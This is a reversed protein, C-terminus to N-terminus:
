ASSRPTWITWPVDWSVSTTECSTQSVFADVRHQFLILGNLAHMRARLGVYQTLVFEIFTHYFMGCGGAPSRAPPPPPPPPPAIYVPEPEQQKGFLRGFMTFCSGRVQSYAGKGSLSSFTRERGQHVQFNQVHPSDPAHNHVTAVRISHGKRDRSGHSYSFLSFGVCLLRREYYAHPNTM